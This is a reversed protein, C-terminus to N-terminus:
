KQIKNNNITKNKKMCLIQTKMCACSYYKTKSIEYKQYYFVAHSTHTFKEQLSPINQQRKSTAYTHLFSGTNVKKFFLPM